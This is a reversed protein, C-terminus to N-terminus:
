LSNLNLNEVEEKDEIFDELSILSFHSHSERMCKIFDRNMRLTILIHTENPALVNNGKAVVKNAVSNERECFSLSSWTGISDKSATVM